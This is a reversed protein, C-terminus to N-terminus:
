IFASVLSQHLAAVIKDKIACIGNDDVFTTNHYTQQKTLSFPQNITDAVAPTLDEKNPPDPLEIM